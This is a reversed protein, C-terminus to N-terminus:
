YLSLSLARSQVTKANICSPLYDAVLGSRDKSVSRGSNLPMHFILMCNFSNVTCCSFKTTYTDKNIYCPFTCPMYCFKLQINSFVLLSTENDNSKQNQHQVLEFLRSIWYHYHRRTGAEDGTAKYKNM